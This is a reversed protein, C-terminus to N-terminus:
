SRTKAPLKPAKAGEALMRKLFADLMSEFVRAPLLRWMMTMMRADAGVLYRLKPRKDTAARVIARAVAIPDAGAGEYAAQMQAEIASYIDSYPTRAGVALGAVKRKDPGVMDTRFQGPEIIVAHIGHPKLEFRLSETMGEVAFKSASYADLCPVGMRGSVSSVNIVRGRGRARMGPLVAKTVRAVGFFNTDFVERLEAISTDELSGLVGVGANNVLVDIGGARAEIDAVAVRVSDDDTVDLQVVEVELGAEKARADIVGRKTPSRMTAFVRFGARALEVSSLMGFGSSAGTVLAVPRDQTGTVEESGRRAREIAARRGFVHPARETHARPM